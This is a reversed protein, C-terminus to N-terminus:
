PLSRRSCVTDVEPAGPHSIVRGGPLIMISRIGRRRALFEDGDVAGLAMAATAYANATVVEPALVTVSSVDDRVQATRADIIHHYKVGGIVRCREYDGSTAVAGHSIEIVGCSSRGRNLPNKIGVRWPRPANRAAHLRLDGAGNVFFNVVGMGKLLSFAADVAYAKGISGLGIRMGAVPLFIERREQNIRIKRFDVLERAKRLAGPSPLVGTRFAERWLMGVAAYSIDYAGGSEAAVRQARSVLSVIEDPVAVPSAGAADNVATLPSPRFDTLMDEIRAIEAYATEVASLIFQRPQRKEDPFVQIEFPSGM